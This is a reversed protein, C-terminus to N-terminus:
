RYSICEGVVKTPWTDNKGHTATWLSICANGTAKECALEGSSVLDKISSNPCIVPADITYTCSGESTTQLTASLRDHYCHAIDKQKNSIEKDKNQCSFLLIIGLIFSFALLISFLLETNLKFKKM